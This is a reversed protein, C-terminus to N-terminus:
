DQLLGGETGGPIIVRHIIIICQCHQSVTSTIDVDNLLLVDSEPAYWLGILVPWPPKIAYTSKRGQSYNSKCYRELPLFHDIPDHSWM